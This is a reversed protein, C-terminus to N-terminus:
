GPAPRRATRGAPRLPVMRRLGRGDGPKLRRRDGPRLRVAGRRPHRRGSLAGAPPRDGAALQGGRDLPRPARCLHHGAARKGAAVPAAAAGGHHRQRHGEALFGVLAGGGAPLRDGPRAPRGAPLCAGVPRDAGEEARHARPVPAARRQLLRRGLRRHCLGGGRHRCLGRVGLRAALLRRAASPRDVDRGLAPQAGAAGAVHRAVARGGGGSRAAAGRLRVHDLGLRHLQQAPLRGYLPLRRCLPRRQRVAHHDGELGAAAPRRGAACQLRGVIHGDHRGQRQVLTPRRALRDGGGRRAARAASVRRRSHRRFRRQRAHRSAGRRLGPRRVLRADPSRAARHRRPASLAPIGPDGPGARRARRGAALDDGRAAHRRRAHDM